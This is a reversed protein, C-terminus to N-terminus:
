NICNNSRQTWCFSLALTPSLQSILTLAATHHSQFCQGDRAPVTGENIQKEKVQSLNLMWNKGWKRQNGLMQLMPLVHCCHKVQNHVDDVFCIEPLIQHWNQNINNLSPLAKTKCQLTPHHCLEAALLGENPSELAYSAWPWWLPASNARQSSAFQKITGLMSHKFGSHYRALHFEITSSRHLEQHLELRQARNTM